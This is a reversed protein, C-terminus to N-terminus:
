SRGDSIEGVVSQFTLAVGTDFDVAPDYGLVRRAAAIDAFSHKVDGMRPPAFRPSIDREAVRSIAALLDLVTKPAGCGINCISGAAGEALAASLTADVVNAVYTFDRSQTGDGFVVPDEGELALRMFRPVVGSYQSNPDQRPGFVNFYRLSVTELEYVSWFARAYQEAALKSVAYPSIPAPVLDEHKPMTETAGYISSSSALVVRRVGSDRAALLINLTGTINVESTTLPDQVSRPVSPLAALHIVYDSGKVANHAREYSRVDGEFVTVDRDVLALNQRRGTSFNDLVRVEHGLELLRTVLHSGIFGAGGTVLYTDGV